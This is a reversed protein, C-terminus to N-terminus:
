MPADFGQLVLPQEEWQHGVLSDKAAYAALTMPGEMDHTSKPKNDLGQSSQPPPTRTPQCQQEEWLATFGRLEETGEGVRGASVGRETWHNAALM